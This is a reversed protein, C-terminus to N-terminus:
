MSMTPGASADTRPAPDVQAAGIELQMEALFEKAKAIAADIGVVRAMPGSGDLHFRTGWVSYPDGDRWTVRDSSGVEEALSLGAFPPAPDVDKYGIAPFHGAGLDIFKFGADRLKARITHPVTM